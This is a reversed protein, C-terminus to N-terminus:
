GRVNGQVMRSIIIVFDFFSHLWLPTVGGAFPPSQGIKKDAAQRSPNVWLPVCTTWGFYAMCSYVVFSERTPWAPSQPHNEESCHWIVALWRPLELWTKEALHVPICIERGGAPRGM